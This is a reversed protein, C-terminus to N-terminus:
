MKNLLCHEKYAQLSMFTKDNVAHTDIRATYLWHEPALTTLGARGIREFNFAHIGFDTSPLIESPRKIEVTGTV